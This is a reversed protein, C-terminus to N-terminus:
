AHNVKELNVSNRVWLHSIRLWNESSLGIDIRHSAFWDFNIAWKLENKQNILETM